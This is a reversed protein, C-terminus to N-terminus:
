HCCVDASMDFRRVLKLGIGSMNCSLLYHFPLLWSVMYFRSLGLESSRVLLYLSTM